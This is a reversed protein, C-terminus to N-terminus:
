QIDREETFGEYLTYKGVPDQIEIRVFCEIM